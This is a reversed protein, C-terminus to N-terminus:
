EGQPAVVYLPVDVKHDDGVWVGFEHPGALRFAFNEFPFVANFFSRSGEFRPEPVTYPYERTRIVTGDPETLQVRIMQQRGVETADASFGIAVCMRGIACPLEDCTVSGVVNSINLNQDGLGSPVHRADRAIVAM